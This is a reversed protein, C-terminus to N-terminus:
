PVGLVEQLGTEMFSKAKPSSGLKQVQRESEVPTPTASFSKGGQVPVGRLDASERIQFNLSNGPNEASGQICILRKKELLLKHTVDTV